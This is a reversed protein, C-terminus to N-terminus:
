HERSNTEFAYITKIIKIFLNNLFHANPLKTAKLINRFFNQRQQKRTVKLFLGHLHSVVPTGLTKRLRALKINGLNKAPWKNFIEVTM